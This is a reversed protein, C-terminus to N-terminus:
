RSKGSVIEFTQPAIKISSLRLLFDEYDSRRDKGRILKLQSASPTVAAVSGYRTPVVQSEVPADGHCCRRREDTIRGCMGLEDDLKARGRFRGSLLGENM